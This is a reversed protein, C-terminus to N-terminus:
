HQVPADRRAIQVVTRAEQEAVEFANLRRIERELLKRWLYRPYRRVYAENGSSYRLVAGYADLTVEPLEEIFVCGGPM